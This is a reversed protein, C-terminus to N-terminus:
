PTWSPPDSAPFSERGAEDVEDAAARNGKGADEGALRGLARRADQYTTMQASLIGATTADKAANALDMAARLSDMVEDLGACVEQAVGQESPPKAEYEEDMLALVALHSSLDPRQSGEARMRGELGDLASWLARCQRRLAGAFDDAGAGLFYWHYTHTKCYLGCTAAWAHSLATAVDAGATGPADDSRAM